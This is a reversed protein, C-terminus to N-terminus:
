KNQVMDTIISNSDHIIQALYPLIKKEIEEPEKIIKMAHRDFEQMIALKWKILKAKYLYWRFLTIM